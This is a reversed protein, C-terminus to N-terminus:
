SHESNGDQMEARLAAENMAEVEERQSPPLTFMDRVSTRDVEQLLDRLARLDPTVM